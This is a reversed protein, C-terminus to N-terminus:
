RSGPGKDLMKGREELVRGVEKGVVRGREM